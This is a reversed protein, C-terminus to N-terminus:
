MMHMSYVFVVVGGEFSFLAFMYLARDIYFM